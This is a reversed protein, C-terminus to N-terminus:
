KQATSLKINQPICAFFLWFLLYTVVPYTALLFCFICFISNKQWFSLTPTQRWYHIYLICAFLFSLAGFAHYLFSYGNLALNHLFPYTSLGHGIWQTVTNHAILKAQAPPLSELQAPGSETGRHKEGIFREKYSAENSLNSFRNDLSAYVAHHQGTVYLMGMISLSILSIHKAYNLVIAKLKKHHWASTALPLALGAAIGFLSWTLVLSAAAVYHLREAKPDPLTMTILIIVTLVYNNPELYIGATRFIAIGNDYHYLQSFGNFASHLELHSGTLANYFFHAFGTFVIISLLYRASKQLSIRYNDWNIVSFVLAFFAIAISSKHGYNLYGLLCYTLVILLWPQKLSISLSKQRLSDLCLPLLLVLALMDFIRISWLRYDWLVACTLIIFIYLPHRIIAHM